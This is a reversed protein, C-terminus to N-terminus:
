FEAATNMKLVIKLPLRLIEKIIVRYSSNVKESVLLPIM